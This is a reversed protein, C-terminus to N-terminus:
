STAVCLLALLILGGISVLFAILAPKKVANFYRVMLRALEDLDGVEAATDLHRSLRRNTYGLLALFLSLSGVFLLVSALSGCPAAGNIM